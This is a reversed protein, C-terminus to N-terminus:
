YGIEGYQWIKKHIYTTGFEFGIEVFPCKELIKKQQGFNLGIYVVKSFTMQNVWIECLNNSQKISLDLLLLLLICCNWVRWVFFWVNLQFFFFLFTFSSFSFFSSNWKSWDICLTSLPQTFRTSRANIAYWHKSTEIKWVNTAVGSFFHQKARIRQQNQDFKCKITFARNHAITPTKLRNFWIIQQNKDKFRNLIPMFHNLKSSILFWREDPKAESFNFRKRM